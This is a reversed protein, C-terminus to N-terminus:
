AVRVMLASGTRYIGGVPVSPTLAAAAADSAATPLLQLPPMTVSGHWVNNGSPSVVGGIFTQGPGVILQTLGAQGNFSRSNQVNITLYQNSANHIEASVGMLATNGVPDILTWTAASGGTYSVRGLWGTNITMTTNGLSQTRQGIPRGPYTWDGNGPAKNVFSSDTQNSINGSLNIFRNGSTAYGFMLPIAGVSRSGWGMDFIQLNSTNGDVDYNLGNAAFITTPGAKRFIFNQTSGGTQLGPAIMMTTMSNVLVCQATGGAELDLASIAGIGPGNNAANDDITFELCPNGQSLLNVATSGSAVKAAGFPVDGVTIVNGAASLVVYCQNITFGNVGASFTVWSVNPIVLSSDPVGINASGNTMTAAVNIAGPAFSNSQLVQCQGLGGYTGNAVTVAVGRSRVSGSPKTCIIEGVTCNGPQLVSNSSSSRIRLQGTTNALSTIHRYDNHICNEFWAGWGTCNIATVVYVSYTSGAGFNGGVHIGDLCNDFGVDLVNCGQAAAATFAAQAQLTTNGPLYPSSGYDTANISLGHFTGNGVWWTGGARAVGSGSDPIDGTIFRPAVGRITINSYSQIPTSNTGGQTLDYVAAECQVIGGGVARAASIAVQIGLFDRTAPVFVATSSNKQPVAIQNMRPM